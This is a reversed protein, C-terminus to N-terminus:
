GDYPKGNMPSTADVERWRNGGPWSQGSEGDEPLREQHGGRHCGHEDTLVVDIATNLGIRQIVGALLHSKDPMQHAERAPAPLTTKTRHLFVLLKDEQRSNSVMRDHRGVLHVLDPVQMQQVALGVPLIETGIDQAELEVM